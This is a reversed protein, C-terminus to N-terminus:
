LTENVGLLDNTRIWYHSCFHLPPLTPRNYRDQFGAYRFTGHTRIEGEGCFSFLSFFVVVYLQGFSDTEQLYFLVICLYLRHIRNSQINKRQFNPVEFLM